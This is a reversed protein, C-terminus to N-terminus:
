AHDAEKQRLTDYRGTDVKPAEKVQLTTELAPPTSPTNLRGLVNLIHEASVVGSELVLDVAVLVAELGARPVACLVQSMVRDGGDRKLLLQQLRRLPQPMDSFPAGNRLVGPKRQALSIYHQWDYCTQGREFLRPHCAIVAEGHVIEVQEPYLRKSILKGAFECPVSYHNRLIHVLCTS